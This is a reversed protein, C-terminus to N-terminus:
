CNNSWYHEHACNTCFQESCDPCSKCANLRTCYGCKIVDSCLTLQCVSCNIKAAELALTNSRCIPCKPLKTYNGDSLKVWKKYATAWDVVSPDINGQKLNVSFKHEIRDWWLATGNTIHHANKNVLAFRLLADSLPMYNLVNGIVEEVLVSAFIDTHSESTSKISKCSTNDEIGKKM